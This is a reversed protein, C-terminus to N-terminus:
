LEKKRFGKIVWATLAGLSYLLAAAITSFLLGILLWELLSQHHDSTFKDGVSEPTIPKKTESFQRHNYIYYCGETTRPLSPEDLQDFPLNMYPACEPKKMESYINNLVQYRYSSTKSTENFPMFLCFYFYGAVTVVLWLRQWGNTSQIWSKISKM